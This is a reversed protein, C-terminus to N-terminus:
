AAQQQKADVTLRMTWAAAGICLAIFLMTWEAHVSPTAVVRPLHLLVAFSVCMAALLTSALRAVRGTVLAIGAAAHATGTLYAWFFHAPLWAPVMSATFQAYVFHSAGFVCACLGFLIRAFLRGRPIERTATSLDLVLAGSAISGIESVGLWAILSGPAAVVLPLQLFTLWLAFILALAIAAFRRTQVPVTAIGAAALSAAALYAFDTRGPIWLPVPQWQLAFDGFGLGVLGLGCAALGLPVVDCATAKRDSTTSWGEDTDDQGMELAAQMM